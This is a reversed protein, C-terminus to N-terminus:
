FIWNYGFFLSVGIHVLAIVLMILAFPLHAVHWYKFFTQMKQLRNIRGIMYIENKAFSLVHRREMKNLHLRKLEGKINYISKRNAIFGKVGPTFKRSDGLINNISIDTKGLNMNLKTLMESRNQEIEELSLARGDATRPIQVYIFRGVVGSAVVVVMSWFAISVLGGVKFSTHFLILIPGLVCLFIHFELLYKLRIFRDFIGYRKSVMYMVVGFAILFTGLIGLGHGILGSPKLMEHMPHYFRETLPLAYYTEGFFVLYATVLITLAILLFIYIRHLLVKM